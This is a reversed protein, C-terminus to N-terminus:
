GAHETREEPMAARPIIAGPFQVVRAALRAGALVAARPPAGRLRAALFGANFSDGAATTDRAPVPPPLEVRQIDGSPARHLVAGGGDTLVVEGPTHRACLAMAAEAGSTGFLGSIDETSPLALTSVALARASWDAAEAAGSWLRARYNTDFAVAGGAAHHRALAALLRTRGAVPLIALTIGSFVICGARALAAEEAEAGPDSLLRRAPAQDRWYLFSREGQPDTRVFSLGPSGAPELAIASVDVGEAAIGDRMWLSMCDRGLRTLYGVRLDPRLRALYIAANLTDGGLRRAFIDPSAADSTFEALPEGIMLVDM